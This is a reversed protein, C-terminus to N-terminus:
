GGRLSGVRRAAADHQLPLHVPDVRDVPADGVRAAGRGGGRLRHDADDPTVLLDYTEHFAGMLKGLAMRVDVAALYDLASRAAGEECVERLGPDLRARQDQSFSETVRAAGSFWLTHFAEVPDAFGPDTEEVQAGLEELLTWRAGCRRRSRPTSARGPRRLRPLLRRAAGTGGGRRGGAGRPLQAARPRAPVLRALRPGHDRGHAPGRGGRGADDAGRARAHRLRQRPLDPGARVDAEARLDRLLVRPHPGLGRRGHRALATGRRLRGGGRQRRQLRRRHAGPDYPNGTM